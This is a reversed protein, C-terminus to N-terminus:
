GSLPLKASGFVVTYQTVSHPFIDSAFYNVISEISIITRYICM